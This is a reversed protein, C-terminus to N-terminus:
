GPLHNSSQQQSWPDLAPSFVEHVLDRLDEHATVHAIRHESWNMSRSGEVATSPTRGRLEQPGVSISDETLIYRDNSARRAKCRVTLMAGPAHMRAPLSLQEGKAADRGFVQLVMSTLLDGRFLDNQNYPENRIAGIAHHIAILDEEMPSGAAPITMPQTRLLHTRYLPTLAAIFITM